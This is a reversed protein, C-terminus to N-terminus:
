NQVFIGSRDSLQHPKNVKVKKSSPYKAFREVSRKVAVILRLISQIDISQYAMKNLGLLMLIFFNWLANQSLMLEILVFYITIIDWWDSIREVCKPTVATLIYFTGVVRSWRQMSTSIHRSSGGGGFGILTGADCACEWTVLWISQMLIFWHCHWM